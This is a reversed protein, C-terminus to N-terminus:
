FDVSVAPLLGREHAMDFLTKIARRGEAGYDLTYGNVYMAVFQKGTERSLGRGFRMAYDLAEDAHALAYEISLRMAREAKARVGDSLSRRIVNGGLPLPLKTEDLWWAGLDVVKALGRKAYTLQGEHILLGAEVKRASVADLITDFPMVVTQVRPEYLRLLLHATTMEGPTAVTADAPSFAKSDNRVVLVPGYGRGVSGGLPMLAYRESLRPYAHFSVASIDYAGELAKRNLTEIDALVYEFVLGETPVKEHVLAYFMFADDADPSHALTLLTM